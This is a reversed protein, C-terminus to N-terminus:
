DKELGWESYIFSAVEDAIVSKCIEVPLDPYEKIVEDLIMKIRAECVSWKM